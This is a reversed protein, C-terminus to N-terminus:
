HKESLRNNKGKESKFIRRRLETSSFNHGRSNYYIRHGLKEILDKGTFEKDKWDIGIVRVDPKVKKILNVLDSETDYIIIEDIYKIGSLIIKREELSMVPKNKYPRDITPDSHLGVILYDCVERCEKFMLVHGAHCLDFAGATFGVVRKNKKGKM